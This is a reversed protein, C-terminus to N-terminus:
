RTAAWGFQEFLIRNTTLRLTVDTFRRDGLTDRIFARVAPPQEELSALVARPVEVVGYQERPEDDVGTARVQQRLGDINHLRLTVAQGDPGTLRMDADECRLNFNPIEVLVDGVQAGYGRDGSPGLDVAFTDRPANRLERGQLPQGTRHFRWASARRQTLDKQWFGTRGRADLGEVRLTRHVGGVGQKEISISSTIRGPVKPHHVWEPSPLQIVADEDGRRQPWYSYDFFVPDMGSIDFDFLRTYLDGGRGIVFVTSGSASLDVARFRGRLPGCMEYADDNPLWPDMFTMRQGGTRLAWIHSVKDNGVEHANGVDDLWFGDEAPSLVSWSWAIVDRPLTRGLGQWFPPGWRRSWSFADPGKLAGDMTFVRRQEDIAILEDDDAGIAAVQGALCDPLPVRRWGPAGGDRPAVFLAGDRTAFQYRGNFSETETRLWVRRPLLGDRAAPWRDLSGREPIQRWPILDREGVTGSTQLAACSAEREAPTPAAAAAPAGALLAAVAILAPRLPRM